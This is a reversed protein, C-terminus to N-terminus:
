IFKIYKILNNVEDDIFNLTTTSSTSESVEYLKILNKDEVVGRKNLKKMQEKNKYLKQIEWINNDVYQNGQEKYTDLENALMRQIQFVQDKM